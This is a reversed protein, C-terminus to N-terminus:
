HTGRELSRGELTLNEFYTGEGNLARRFILLIPICNETNSLGLRGFWKISISSESMSSTSLISLSGSKSLLISTQPGTLISIGKQRTWNTFQFYQTVRLGQLNSQRKTRLM